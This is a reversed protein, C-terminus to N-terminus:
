PAQQLVKIANADILDGDAELIGRFGIEDTDFYRENSVEFRFNGVTRVYYASFDGFAVSKVASGQTGFNM